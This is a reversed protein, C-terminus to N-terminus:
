NKLNIIEQAHAEAARPGAQLDHTKEINQPVGPRRDKKRTARTLNKLSSFRWYL